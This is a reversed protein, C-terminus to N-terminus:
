VKVKSQNKSIAKNKKTCKLLMWIAIFGDTWNIKKGEIKTRPDYSVPVEYIRFGAQLIRATIEPEIEFGNAHLSIKQAVKSTFVKFGTEMDTLKSKYILNTLVTLARNALRRFFPIYNNKLFRSGYVVKARNNLIPEILNLYDNPSYELDADQILIIDGRAVKLGTRIAAGKGSNVPAFHFVASGCEHARLIETTGDTSGDDVVIIEKEVPLEVSSIKNIVDVITSEENFVPIIISLLRSSKEM